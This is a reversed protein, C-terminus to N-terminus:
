SYYPVSFFTTYLSLRVVVVNSSKIGFQKKIYRRKGVVITLRTFNYQRTHVKNTRSRLLYGAVLGLFM